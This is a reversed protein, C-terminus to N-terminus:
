VIVIRRYTIGHQENYAQRSQFVPICEPDTCFAVWDEESSWFITRVQTLGDTSEEVDSFVLKDAYTTKVYQDFEPPNEYFAVDTSPRTFTNKYAYYAM